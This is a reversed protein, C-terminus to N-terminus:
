KLIYEKTFIRALGHDIFHGVDHTIRERGDPTVFYRAVVDEASAFQLNTAGDIPPAGETVPKEIWYRVYRAFGHVKKALNVHNDWSRRFASKPLDSFAYFGRMIKYGQTPNGRLKGPEDFELSTTVEYGFNAATREAIEQSFPAFLRLFASEGPTTLDIAVHFDEGERVENPYPTGSGPPDVGINVRITSCDASEAVRPGLENLCWAKFEDVIGNRSGLFFLYSKV